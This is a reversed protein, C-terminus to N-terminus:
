KNPSIANPSGSDTVNEDAPKLQLECDAQPVPKLTSKRDRTLLIREINLVPLEAMLTCQTGFVYSICLQVFCHIFYRWKATYHLPFPVVLYTFVVPIMHILYVSYSLTSLPLFVRCSLFRNLPGGLGTHCAYILWSLGLAFVTRHTAGYVIHYIPWDWGQLAPYVGFLGWFLMAGSITWGVFIFKLSRSKKQTQAQFGALHYGLLIGVIYPGIRYWPKIYIVLHHLIFDPNFIAPQKWLLQTPPFNYVLMCIVNLIASVIITGLSITLGLSPNRRLTLLFIPALLYFIFETGIYWTWPMCRNDTLSNIFLINEIWHKPCQVAPDTPPWMPHYHTVSVRMTVAILTYVYAPYLRVIRHRYFRLWFGYSTWSPEVETTNKQWKKFWSYATLTGSLVLFVDVSLTFNTIIQNWFNDVLDAKFDDVNEIFAQVFIFSHGVLTWVMSLFRLGFMCTITSQADKPMQILKSLNKKLSFALLFQTEMSKAHDGKKMHYLTALGVLMYLFIDSSFQLLPTIQQYWQLAHRSKTCDEYDLTLNDQRKSAASQWEKLLVQRDNACTSPICIGYATERQENNFGYCYHLPYQSASYATEGAAQLCEFARYIWRDQDRSTFQTADGTGFSQSYFSRQAELTSKDSLYTEVKNLSSACKSTINAKSVTQLYSWVQHEPYSIVTATETPQVFFVLSLYSSLAWMLLKM